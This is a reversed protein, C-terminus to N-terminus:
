KGNEKPPLILPLDPLLLMLAVIVGITYFLFVTIETM